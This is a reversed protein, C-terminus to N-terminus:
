SVGRLLRSPKCGLVLALGVLQDVTMTLRGTELRSLTSQSWGCRGACEAVSWGRQERVTRATAGVAITAPGPERRRAGTAMRAGTM